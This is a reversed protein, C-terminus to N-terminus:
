DDLQCVGAGLSRVSEGSILFRKLDYVADVVRIDRHRFLPSSKLMVLAQRAHVRENTLIGRHILLSIPGCFVRQEILELLVPEFGELFPSM